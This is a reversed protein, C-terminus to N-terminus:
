RQIPGVTPVDEGKHPGLLPCTRMKIHAWCLLCTRVKTHTLLTPMDEGKYPGLLPCTRVKTHALLPCTRMKIHAWCLLCIRVKKGSSPFMCNRFFQKGKKTLNKSCLHQILNLLDTTRFAYIVMLVM